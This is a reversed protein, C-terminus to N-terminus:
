CTSRWSPSFDSGGLSMLDGPRRLPLPDERELEIQGRRCGDRLLYVVLWARCEQCPRVPDGRAPEVHLGQLNRRRWTKKLYFYEGHTLLRWAPTLAYDFSARAAAAPWQGQGFSGQRIRRQQYQKARAGEIAHRDLAGGGNGGNATGAKSSATPTPSRFLRPTPRPRPLRVQLLLTDAITVDRTLARTGSRQMDFYSIALRHRQAFRWEANLHYTDDRKAVGLDNHLGVETGASAKDVRLRSDSSTLFWGAQFRFTDSRLQALACAPIALAVMVAAAGCRNFKGFMTAVRRYLVFEGDADFASSWSAGSAAIM